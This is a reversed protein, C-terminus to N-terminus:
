AQPVDKQVCPMTNWDQVKGHRGGQVRAGCRATGDTGSNARGVATGKTYRQEEDDEAGRRVTSEELAAAPRTSSRRKRTRARRAVKRMDAQGERNRKAAVEEQRADDAGREHAQQAM